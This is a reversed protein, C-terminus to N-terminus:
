RALAFDNIIAVRHPVMFDQKVHVEVDEHKKSSRVDFQLIDLIHQDKIGAVISLNVSYNTEWLDFHLVEYVKGNHKITEM